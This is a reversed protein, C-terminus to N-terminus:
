PEEPLGVEPSGERRVSPMKQQGVHLTHPFCSDLDMPSARQPRVAKKYRKKDVEEEPAARLSASTELRRSRRPRVERRPVAQWRSRFCAVVWVCSFLFPCESERAGEPCGATHRSSDARSADCRRPSSGGRQCVASLVNGWSALASKVGSGARVVGSVVGGWCTSLLM